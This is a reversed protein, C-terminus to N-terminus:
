PQVGCEAICGMSGIAAAFVTSAWLILFFKQNASM